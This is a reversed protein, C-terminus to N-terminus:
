LNYSSFFTSFATVDAWSPFFSKLKKTDDVLYQDLVAVDMRLAESSNAELWFTWSENSSGSLRCIYSPPGGSIKEPAPLRYDAFSWNSLPGTINLVSAWIEGLSGLHLELHVRRHGAESISKTNRVTLHPFSAYHKLISDGDAPFKLSGSFLFSVPFLAIWTSGDSHYNSNFSFESNIDLMKSAEPSHKFLFALSNSDVVSFDYRSDVVKDAGATNFTHQLVVRKPADLSYPFFQSSLALAIITVQMFCQLISSRALWHGVVPMLPGMCWGTVLGITAAVVADQVFYGYPQPLSGMMGMKEILFQVLFGSYYVSYLVCPIMPVVYGALSKISQRGCRKRMICYAFWALLMSLSIMCTLFGGGLQALLYVMTIFTYLGFAGWFCANDSLVVNSVNLHSADQSLPFFGWVTRPLLLGVLSCPVFMLFALFPHAFWNMAQSSFFLRLVAFVVPLVIASVLSVAHFLTGKLFDCLTAIWLNVACNPFHLFLSMLLFVVLPLSHLGVSLNRSYYIMFWSLYDFFVARDEMTGHPAVKLSREGANLLLSSNAFAKTLRFLNEGRAQISGPLLREVTDYSTHYFYGGLVFIIDLGPINGYDEAFIRYDTDGPIIGFMDQAVSNAMPYKASQAYVHAPWSGPGSQCVLDFGGTGSAEINIFAGVTNSWKHTKVFGHSGLLFLEEAGNFLFIIPQPPIWGSDVILRALELMSAVCSGCDGAGPSGLPSDFHGNVLISPDRDNSLKSSIRMVVNKHNRYGLSISHRLFLMNFTGNVLSEEVEIRYDPGARSAITELEKRIYKAAEELGPHGEQRGDIEVTLQRIHEVVRAESFRDSPADLGLPAVHKMHIIWYTICSMIGFMLALLFLCKFAAVDRSGWGM